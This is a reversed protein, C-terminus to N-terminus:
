KKWNYVVRGRGDPFKGILIKIFDIVAVAQCCVNVFFMLVYMCTLTMSSAGLTASITSIAILVHTSLLMFAGSKIRDVYFRHLGYRGLLMCYILACLRSKTSYNDKLKDETSEKIYEDKYEHELVETIDNHEENNNEDDNKNFVNKFFGKKNQEVQTAEDVEETM